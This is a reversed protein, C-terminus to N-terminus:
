LASINSVISHAVWSLKISAVAIVITIAVGLPTADSVPRRGNIQRYGATAGIIFLLQWALPDFYWSHHDPYTRITWGFFLSLVYLVASPAVAALLHRSLLLLILPLVALMVIYLPLIDLYNPQFQLALAKIVAFQPEELFDAIGMEENYMPNGTKLVAFSVEAVFVVFLFVHAVYLQWL